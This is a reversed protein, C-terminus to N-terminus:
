RTHRLVVLNSKRRSTLHRSFDGVSWVSVRFPKNDASRRYDLLLTEPAEDSEDDLSIIEKEDDDSITGGDEIEPEIKAETSSTNNSISDTTEEGESSNGSRCTEYESSTNKKKKKCRKKRRAVGVDSFSEDSTSSIEGEEKESSDSITRKASSRFQYERVEENQMGESSEENESEIPSYKEVDVEEVPDDVEVDTDDGSEPEPKVHFM